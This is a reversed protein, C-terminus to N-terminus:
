RKAPRWGAAEAEAQSCFWRERDGEDIKTRGYSHDGPMHYIRGNGSINGKIACGEPQGSAARESALQDGRRWESPVVFKGQWMGRRSKRATREEESYRGDSYEDYEVAWGSRVMAANLIVNDRMVCEAVIRGYRDRDAEFCQVRGSRGILQALHDAARTGSLYRKGGADDCTQGSEPADIGYLRIREETGSVAITDGDIVTARGDIGAAGSSSAATAKTTSSWRLDVLGTSHIASPAAFAALLAFAISGYVPTCKQRPPSRSEHRRQRGTRIHVVHRTWGTSQRRKRKRELNNLWRDAM